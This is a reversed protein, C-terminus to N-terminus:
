PACPRFLVCWAGMPPPQRVHTDNKTTVEHTPASDHIPKLSTSFLAPFSATRAPRQLYTFRKALSSRVEAKPLTQAQTVAKGFLGPEM